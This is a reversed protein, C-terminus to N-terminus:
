PAGLAQRKEAALRRELESCRGPAVTRLALRYAEIDQRLAEVQRAGAMEDPASCKSPTPAAAAEDRRVQCAALVRDAVAPDIDGLAAQYEDLALSAEDFQARLAPSWDEPSTTIDRSLPEGPTATTRARRPPKAPPKPPANKPSSHRPM